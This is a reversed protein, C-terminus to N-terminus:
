MCVYVDDDVYFQERNVAQPCINAFGTSHVVAVFMYTGLVHRLSVAAEFVACTCVVGNRRNSPWM